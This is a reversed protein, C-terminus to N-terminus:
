MLWEPKEIGAYEQIAGLVHQAIRTDNIYVEVCYGLPDIGPYGLLKMMAKGISATDKRWNKITESVYVGKKIVFVECGYTAAEGDYLAEVAAKYIIDGTAAGWSIGFFHRGDASPLLAHLQQHAAEVKDPFSAATVCCVKVDKGLIYKEM